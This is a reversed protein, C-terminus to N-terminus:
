GHESGQLMKDGYMARSQEMAELWLLRRNLDAEWQEHTMEVDYDLRLTYGTDYGGSVIDHRPEAIPERREFEFYLQRLASVLSPWDDAGLKLSLEYRRTPNGPKTQLIADIQEREM